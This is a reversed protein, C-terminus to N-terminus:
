YNNDFFDQPLPEGYMKKYYIKKKEEESLNQPLSNLILSRASMFMECAIAIRENATKKMIIEFQMKEIEPTTDKM